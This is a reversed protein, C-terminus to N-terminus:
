FGSLGIQSANSLAAGSTNNLYNGFWDPLTSIVNAVYTDALGELQKNFYDTLERSSAFFSEAISNCGCTPVNSDSNSQSGVTEGSTDVTPLNGQPYNYSLYYPGVNPADKNVDSIIVPTRAKFYWLLLLLVIIIGIVSYTIKEKRTM